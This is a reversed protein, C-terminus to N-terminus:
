GFRYVYGETLWDEGLETHRVDKLVLASNLSRANMGQSFSKGPGFVKPAQFFFAKDVIGAELASSVVTAGGEILVTTVQRRYLEALIDQWSLREKREMRVRVIEAGVRELRRIRGENNSTTFVLVPGPESFLRADPGIRLFCDLVVRLLRKGQAIRCTLRPNDSLVSNVGVIIADAAKRLKQGFERAEEGTIWQSEGESTAMMGDLTAAVKLIVFPRHEQVFTLYGENLRRAEKALLGVRVDIGARRLCRIGKGN